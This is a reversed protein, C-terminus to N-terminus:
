PSITSILRRFACSLCLSLSCRNFLSFVQKALAMLSWHQWHQLMHGLICLYSPRVKGSWCKGRSVQWFGDQIEKWRVAEMNHRLSPLIRTNQFVLSAWVMDSLPQRWKVSESNLSRVWIQSPLDHQEPSALKQPFLSGLKQQVGALPCGTAEGLQLSSGPEQLQQWRQLDSSQNAAGQGQTPHNPIQQAGATGTYSNLWEGTALPLGAYSGWRLASQQPQRIFHVGRWGLTHVSLPIYMACAVPQQQLIFTFVRRRGKLTNCFKSSYGPASASSLMDQASSITPLIVFTNGGVPNLKIMETLTNPSPRVPKLLLLCVGLPLAPSSCILFRILLAIGM